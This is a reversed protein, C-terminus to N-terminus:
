AALWLPLALVLRHYSVAVENYRVAIARHQKLRVVVQEGV